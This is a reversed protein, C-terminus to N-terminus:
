GAKRLALVVSGFDAPLREVVRYDTGGVMVNGTAIGGITLIPNDLDPDVPLDALQLFVTPVRAEVGAENAGSGGALKFSDDFIGVVAVPMGFQPRYIVTEGGLLHQANRDIRAVNEGFGM